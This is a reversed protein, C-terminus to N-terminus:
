SLLSWIKGIYLLHLSCATIGETTSNTEVIPTRVPFKDCGGNNYTVVVYWRCTTNNLGLKIINSILYIKSAIACCAHIFLLIISIKKKLKYIKLTEFIRLDLKNKTQILNHLRQIMITQQIAPSFWLRRRVMM